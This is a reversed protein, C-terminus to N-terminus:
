SQAGGMDAQWRRWFARQPTEDTFAGIREGSPTQEELHLGRSLTISEVGPGSMATQAGHFVELDDVGIIGAPGVRTQVDHLRSSNIDDHAGEIIMPYSYVETHNVARPQIVRINNDMIVVSPFILMHRNELIEDTRAKGNLRELEDRYQQRIEASVFKNELPSGAQLVGHGKPFGRTQGISRIATYQRGTFANDFKQFTNYASRHVFHAHYGDYVNEAQLKWNARYAYRHPAAVRYRGGACRGLWLDIHPKAEGLYSDLSEVAANLSGFILGGYSEVRAVPILGKEETPFDDPFRSRDVIAALRGDLGYSWGHYPCVFLKTNGQEERCLGAGRHRCINLFARAVGDADRVLIVSQQGIWTAKYDGPAAIESEHGLYIWTSYFIKKLEAQFVDARHYAGTAVKFETADETVFPGFRDATWTPPPAELDM